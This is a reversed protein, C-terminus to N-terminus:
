NRSTLIDNVITLLLEGSSRIIDTLRRQELDLGTQSLLEATGIIGTLPTRIEHSM